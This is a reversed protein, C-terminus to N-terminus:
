IGNCDRVTTCNNIPERLQKSINKDVGLQDELSTIIHITSMNDGTYKREMDEITKFKEFKGRLYRPICIPDKCLGVIPRIKESIFDKRPLSEAIVHMICLENMYEIDIISGPIMNKHDFTKFVSAFSIVNNLSNKSRHNGYICEHMTINQDRYHLHHTKKFEEQLSTQDKKDGINYFRNEIAYIFVHKKDKIILKTDDESIKIGAYNCITSDIFDRSESYKDRAKQM